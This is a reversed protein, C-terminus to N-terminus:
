CFSLAYRLTNDGSRKIWGPNTTCHLYPASISVFDHLADNKTRRKTQYLLNDSPDIRCLKPSIHLHDTIWTETKAETWWHGYEITKVMKTEKTESSRYLITLPPKLPPSNRNSMDRWFVRRFTHNEGNLGKSSFALVVQPFRVKTVVNRTPLQFMRDLHSQWWRHNRGYRRDSFLPVLAVRSRQHLRWLHV